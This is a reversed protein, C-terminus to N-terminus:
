AFKALAKRIYCRIRNPRGKKQECVRRATLKIRIKNILCIRMEAISRAAFKVPVKNRQLLLSQIFTNMLDYDTAATHDAGLLHALEHTQILEYRYIRHKIDPSEFFHAQGIANATPGPRACIEAALGGVHETTGFLLPPDILLNYRPTNLDFAFMQWKFHRLREAQYFASQVTIPSFEPLQFQNSVDVNIKAEKRFTAKLRQLLMNEESMSVNTPHANVFTYAKVPLITKFNDAHAPCNLCFIGIALLLFPTYVIRIM